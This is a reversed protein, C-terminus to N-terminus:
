ACTPNWAHEVLRAILSTYTYGTADCLSAVFSSTAPMYPITNIENVIARESGRDVLFDVRAMGHCGTAKFAEWALYSLRDVLPTPYHAPLHTHHHDGGYKAAFDYLEGEYEIEVPSGIVLYAEDLVGIEVDCGASFEEVLIVDDFRFALTLAVDLSESAAARSLGISSGAKAPKVICPYGLRQSVLTAVAAPDAEYVQRQLSLYRPIPLGAALMARKFRAKDYCTLAAAPGCGVYPLSLSECLKQIEGDEGIPGHMLPFVLDIGLAGLLSILTERWANTPGSPEPTGQNDSSVSALSWSGQASLDLWTVEYGAAALTEHVGAASVRSAVSEGSMGGSLVAIRPSDTRGHM